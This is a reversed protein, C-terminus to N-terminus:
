VKSYSFCIDKLAVVHLFTTLIYLMAPLQLYDNGKQPEVTNWRTFAYLQYTPWTIIYPEYTILALIQILVPWSLPQRLTIQDLLRPLTSLLDQENNTITYKIYLLQITMSLLAEQCYPHKQRNVAILYYVINHM